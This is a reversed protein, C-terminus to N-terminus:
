GRSPRRREWQQIPCLAHYGLREFGPRGEPTAALTTTKCGRDAADALAHALLTAGLGRGRAEQVTAVPGVGCNGDREYTLVCSVPEGDLSGLYVRAWDPLPRSFTRSFATGFLFARDCIAAMVAPEGAATWEELAAESPREIGRLERAMAAPTGELRHGARKLLKGAQDDTAPVTVMWAEVGAEEYTAALEDLATALADTREYVVANMMSGEPATPIVAAAVGDLELMRGGPASACVVRSFDRLGEIVRDVVAAEEASLRVPRAALRRRLRTRLGIRVRLSEAFGVV